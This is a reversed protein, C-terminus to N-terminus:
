DTVAANGDRAAREGPGDLHSNLAVLFYWLELVGRFEFVRLGLRHCFARLEAMSLRPRGQGERRVVAVLRCRGGHRTSARAIRAKAREIPHGMGVVLVLREAVDPDSRSQVLTGLCERVWTWGEDGRDLLCCRWRGEATGAAALFRSREDVRDVAARLDADHISAPADADYALQMLDLARGEVGAEMWRQWSEKAEALLKEVPEARPVALVQLLDSPTFAGYGTIPLRSTSVRPASPFEPKARPTAGAAVGGPYPPQTPPKGSEAFGALLERRAAAEGLGVLDIYIIQALLGDPACERVRVPLLTREKGRPDRAFATAWEPQTYEAALYSPSLVALTHRARTAEQMYLVSNGGPRFDWAQVVVSYGEEELAWAIWEAWGRDAKNYSVFVDPPATSTMRLDRYSRGGTPPAQRAPELGGRAVPLIPTVVFRGAGYTCERVLTLLRELLSRDPAEFPREGILCLFLETGFLPEHKARRSILECLKKWESEEAAGLALPDLADKDGAPALPGRARARQVVVYFPM